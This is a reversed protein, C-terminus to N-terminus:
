DDHSQETDTEIESFLRNDSVRVADRGTLHRWRRIAADVHLPDIEIGRCRRGTCEAALLTTGSGLFCDLVIDGLNSCDLLADMVLQIPKITPHLEIVNGGSRARASTSGHRWV